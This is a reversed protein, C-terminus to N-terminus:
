TRKWGSSPWTGFSAYGAYCRILDLRPPVVLLLMATLTRYMPRFPWCPYSCSRRAALWSVGILRYRTIGRAEPSASNTM